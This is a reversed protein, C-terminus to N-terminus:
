IRERKSESVNENGSESWIESVTENRSGSVIGIVSVHSPENRVHVAIKKKAIKTVIRRGIMAVANRGVKIKRLLTNRALALIQTMREENENANNIV